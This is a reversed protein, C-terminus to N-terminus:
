NPQLFHIPYALENPLQYPGNDDAFTRKVTTSTAM